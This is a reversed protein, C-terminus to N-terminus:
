NASVGEGPTSILADISLQLQAELREDLDRDVQSFLRERNLTADAQAINEFAPESTLAQLPYSSEGQSWNNAAFQGTLPSASHGWASLTIAAMLAVPLTVTKM